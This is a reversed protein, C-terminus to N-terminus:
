HRVYWAVAIVQLIILSKGTLSISEKKSNLLATLQHWESLVIETYNM